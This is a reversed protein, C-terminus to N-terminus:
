AKSRAAEPVPTFFISDVSITVNKPQQPILLTIVNCFCKDSVFIVNICFFYNIHITFVDGLGARPGM